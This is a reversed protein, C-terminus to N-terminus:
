AQGWLVNLCEGAIAWNEQARIVLARVPADAAAVDTDIPSGSNKGADLRLGLFSFADCVAARVRDSHEGVGGTFVLADLGGLSALMAGIYFRVRHVYIDLALQARPDGRDVAATVERLDGSVGSVGKLGSERNLLDSLTDPTYGRERLLYLLLGPDISGSRTGMMLGELPTFGMTTDMSKGGRVACLSCGNGLHCTILRLSALDRGLLRAARGASYAHSIGHFGYRRIDDEVWAYPGPYVAAADPISSHFATDFVAVQPTTGLMRQAAEIGALAPPNHAPALPSLQAVAAKVAPTILTSRSYARGGHVVRHGVVGIEDPGSIVRTPGDWLTELLRPLVSRADTAALTQRVTAEGASVVLRSGDQHAEWLPTPPDDPLAGQVRYLTCKQSSSGANLVLINMPEARRAPLYRTPDTPYAEGYRQIYRRCGLRKDGVVGTKLLM